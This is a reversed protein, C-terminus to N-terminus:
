HELMLLLIPLVSFIFFALIRLSFSSKELTHLFGSAQERSSMLFAMYWLSFNLLIIQVAFFIVGLGTLWMKWQEMNLSFFSTIVQGFLLGFSLGGIAYTNILVQSASKAIFESRPFLFSLGVLTLALAGIVNWLHPGIGESIAKELYASPLKEKFIHTCLVFIMAPVAWWLFTAAGNKVIDPSWMQGRFVVAQSNVFSRIKQM